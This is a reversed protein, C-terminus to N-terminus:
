KYIIGAVACARLSFGNYDTYNYSYNYNYHRLSRDRLPYLLSDLIYKVLFLDKANYSIKISYIFSKIDELSNLIM